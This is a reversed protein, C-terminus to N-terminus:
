RPSTRGWSPGRGSRPRQSPAASRQHRCCRVSTGAAACAEGSAHQATRIGGSPCTCASEKSLACTLQRTPQRGCPRDFKAPHQLRYAKKPQQSSMRVTCCLGSIKRSHLHPLRRQVPLLADVDDDPQLGLHCAMRWLHSAQCAVQACAQAGTAADHLSRSPYSAFVAHIRHKM